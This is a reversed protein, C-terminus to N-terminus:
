DLDLEDLAVAIEDANLRGHERGAELLAKADETELVDTVTRAPAETASVEHGGEPGPKVRHRVTGAAPVLRWPGNPENKHRDTRDGGARKCSYGLGSASAHGRAKASPSVC